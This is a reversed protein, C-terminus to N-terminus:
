GDEMHQKQVVMALTLWFHSLPSAVLFVWVNNLVAGQSHVEPFGTRHNLAAHTM